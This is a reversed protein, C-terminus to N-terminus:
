RSLHEGIDKLTNEDIEIDSDKLGHEGLQRPLLHRTAIPLKDEFSYGAVPIIEMRDLLPRSINRLSNATAIFLVQYLSYHIIISFSSSINVQSLDFPVNLYHDIFNSNQEPDLVELLAAAPDGHM